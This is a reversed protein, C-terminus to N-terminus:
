VFDEAEPNENFNDLFERRFQDLGPEDMGPEYQTRADFKRTRLRLGMFYCNRDYSPKATGLHEMREFHLADKYYSVLKGNIKKDAAFLYAYESGVLDNVDLMKKVVFYWFLTEGMRNANMDYEKWSKKTRDNACFEVLEVASITESVQIMKRNPDDETKISRFTYWDALMKEVLAEGVLEELTELMSGGMRLLARLDIELFKSLRPDKMQERTLYKEWLERTGASSYLEMVERIVDPDFLSGCKLSFFLVIQGKPNKIVYYATSGALDEQWADMKLKRVLGGGKASHFHAILDRNDPDATLRECTFSSLIAEQEPTMPYTIAM